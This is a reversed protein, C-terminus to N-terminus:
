GRGWQAFATGPCRQNKYQCCCATQDESHCDPREALQHITREAGFCLNFARQLRRADGHHRKHFVALVLSQPVGAERCVILPQSITGTRPADQAVLVRNPGREIRRKGPKRFRKTGDLYRDILVTPSRARTPFCDTFVALRQITSSFFFEYRLALPSSTSDDAEGRRKRM